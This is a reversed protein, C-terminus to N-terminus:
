PEPEVERTHFLERAHQNFRVSLETLYALNEYLWLRAVGAGLSDAPGSGTGIRAILDRSLDQNPAVPAPPPQSNEITQGAEAYWSSVEEIMAELKPSTGPGPPVFWPEQPILGLGRSVRRLRLGSAALAMLSEPDIHEGTTEDLYQRLVADLRDSAALAEDWSEQDVGSHGALVRHASRRLLEAAAQMSEGLSRRILETAGQPWILLGVMLSVGCGIAVDQFRILAIEWGIPEILNYLVMVLVAFGAQGAAFSLARPAYAAFLVSLPLAIWLLVISSGILDIFFSGVIIGVLTGGLAHWISGRTGLANNRLISLTGLVVWFANQVSLLDAALVALAIAIAGRISNQFWSSSPNVHESILRGTAAVQHRSRGAAWAWVKGLVGAARERETAVEVMRSVDVAAYAVKRLRFEHELQRAAEDVNEERVSALEGASQDVLEQLGDTVPGVPLENRSGALAKSSEEVLDATAARLRRARDGDADIGSGPITILGYLWGVEEVLSALAASVGTAGTPRHPTAVFRKRLTWVRKRTEIRLEESNPDRILEALSACVKSAHRRLEGTWPLRWLLYTAPICLACALLWGYLRDDIESMPAEIMLPLALLLVAGNRAAAVYPNVVGLFFIVFSVIGAVVVGAITVAASLWTGLVILVCGAVVLSLWAVLRSGAPGAFTVMALVIFSGFAAFPQASGALFATALAFSLPMFIATRLAVKFAAPDIRDTLRSLSL